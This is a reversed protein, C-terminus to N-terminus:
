HGDMRNIENRIDNIVKWILWTRWLKERTESNNESYMTRHLISLFIM